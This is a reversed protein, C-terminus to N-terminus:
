EVSPSALRDEIEWAHDLAHWAMRRVFYRVPWRQGGRPGVPSIEGRAFADMTDFVAQRLGTLAAPSVPPAPFKGGLQALYGQEADHVHAIIKELTRGGGRPGTTLPKGIASEAIRDFAQWCAALIAKLRELEGEALPLHDFEPIRHPAGFDTAADGPLTELTSFVSIGAPPEFALGAPQLVAQYRPAYSLLAQLAGDASFASRCWGPWDLAAAFIRKKGTELYVPISGQRNPGM